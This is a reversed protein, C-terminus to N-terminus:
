PTPSNFATATVGALTSAEVRYGAPTEVAYTITEGDRTWRVTIPGDPTMVNGECAQLTLPAFRLAVRKTVADVAHVGLVDRLLVHALHSAFGHNCSAHARDNEWLTGTLDAMYLHYDVSEDLLQQILGDRALLELRLVNGVFANAPHVDPYAGTEKRKPGFEDRLVRWLVPHSEPTAVGFYFAFYQCVESRNVTVELRGDANRVANDVFFSGDFSQERVTERISAAKALLADDNYLRGAVALAAAYLMNSPYNVDQVFENARSWEVFVWSQLKELLGEDNEFGRFYDFLARVKPELAAALGVNGSRHVYEELQVVFWLSWNPIFVGDYHDAPYCMPLMGKPLHAFSEPLLYNEIFNHEVDTNGGLTFATRATFYSDCLWGARERHPCDMFLDVANQRYTEVAARYLTNLTDDEAHFTADTVPNVYERLYINSVECAGEIVVVKLYRFTYAEFSELDYMGPELEYTVVNVCDLRHFNVDADTLIEDFTFFLRTPKSCEVRAGLFGSQNVGLDLLACTESELLLPAQPDYPRTETDGYTTEHYQLEISPITELEAEAYGKLQPGIGTLSRDRWLSEVADVKHMVGQALHLKPHIRAFEPMPVRRPLLAVGPQIALEVRAEPMSRTWHADDPAMRYVESFPRQFSYRQVKQVRHDLLTAAFADTGTAALITDGSRVEAQLFSPQDLTYFSNSNYGAVEIAVINRGERLFSDLPWADVRYHGHPGRAPGYGAVDGNVFVRYLTSGTAFLTVPLTGAPREVVAVFGVQVNMETHRDAPWVPKAELFFPHTQVVGLVTAIAWAAIM